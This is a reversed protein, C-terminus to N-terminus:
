SYSKRPFYGDRLTWVAKMTLPEGDFVIQSNRKDSRNKLYSTVNMWRITQEGTDFRLRSSLSFAVLMKTPLKQNQVKGVFYNAFLRNAQNLLLHEIVLFSM